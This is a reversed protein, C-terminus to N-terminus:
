LCINNNHEHADVNHLGSHTGAALATQNHIPSHIATPYAVQGGIGSGLERPICTQTPSYMVAHAYRASKSFTLNTLPQPDFYAM